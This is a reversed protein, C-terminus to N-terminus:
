TKYPTLYILSTDTNFINVQYGTHRALCQYPRCWAPAAPECTRRKIYM